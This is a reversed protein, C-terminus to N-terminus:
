ILNNGNFNVQVNGGSSKRKREETNLENIEASFLSAYQTASEPEALYFFVEALAGNLLVRENQDKLWNSVEAGYYSKIPIPNSREQLAPAAPIDSDAVTAEYYVTSQVVDSLTYQVKKLNTTSM